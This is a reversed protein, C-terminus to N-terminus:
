AASQQDELVAGPITHGAKLDAEALRALLPAAERKFRDDKLYHGLLAEFDTCRVVKTTRLSVGRGRTGAKVKLDAPQIVAGQAAKAAAEQAKRALEAKFFETPLAKAWKKAAEAERKIPQWKADTDRSDKLHPEKEAVRTKEAEKELEAFRDAFNAAKDAQEQTAIKGGIGELWKKAEALLEKVTEQIVLEPPANHGFHESIETLREEVQARVDPLDEPWSGNDYWHWYAEESVPIQLCWAFVQDCFEEERDAEITQGNRKGIKACLGGEDDRWIAVGISSGDRQRMRYYGCEAKGRTHDPNRGALADKWFARPDVTATSQDTTM